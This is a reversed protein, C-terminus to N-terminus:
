EAGHIEDILAHLQQYRTSADSVTNIELEVMMKSENFPKALDGLIEDFKAETDDDLQDYEGKTTDYQTVLLDM